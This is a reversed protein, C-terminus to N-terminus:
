LKEFVEPKFVGIALLGNHQMIVSPGRSLVLMNQFTKLLLRQVLIFSEERNSFFINKTKEKIWAGLSAALMQFKKSSLSM